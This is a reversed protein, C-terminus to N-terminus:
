ENKNGYKKILLLQIRKIFSLWITTILLFLLFLIVMMINTNGQNSIIGMVASLLEPVAIASALMSSKVLNVMVGNIGVSVEQLINPVTRISFTYSTDNIKKDIISEYFIKSIIAGHYISLCLISAWFASINFGYNTYMLSGFGFFVLYMFLLPPTSSLIFILVKSIISILKFRSSTIKVGVIGFFITLITSIIIISLSIRLGNSFSDRDYEDYIFSFNLGTKEQIGLVVSNLGEVDASTIFAKERCETRWDRDNERVCYLKGNLTFSWLAQNQILFKSNGIEWKEGLDILYNERHLKAIIEGILTEFESGKESLPLYAAWPVTLASPLNAKYGSYEPLSLYGIIAAESYLLGACVGQSLAARALELSKFVKLDIVYRNKIGKNFYAGALGCLKKSRLDNWSEVSVEPRLLVNVGAGFYGPEIATAIKRRERTDAATAIVMDVAGQELRQFRNGTTVGVIGVEVGIEQAIKKALDIEFGWIIGASDTFGFPEFNTKVGIVILNKQRVKELLTSSTNAIASCAFTFILLFSIKLIQISRV